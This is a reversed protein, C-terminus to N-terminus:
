FYCVKDKNTFRVHRGYRSTYPIKNAFKTANDSSTAEDRENVTNEHLNDQTLIETVESDTTDFIEADSEEPIQFFIAQPKVRSCRCDDINKSIFPKLRHMSVTDEKGNPLELTFVKETRKAVKFPGTYPAELPKRSRDVRVWVQDCTMLDKPTYFSETSSKHWKPPTFSLDSMHQSLIKVFENPNKSFDVTDVMSTPMLMSSGTVLNFPSQGTTSNPYIRMALLAVPLTEIWDESHCRLINKLTKHQREILGNSQPHYSTTRIRTFGLLKSLETFLQSEFQKGRDTILELPVGWRSVWINLFARAVEEATIGCTPIAEVWRTYRDIFTVIYRYPMNDRHFDRSTELPGVIDMHVTAFRSSPEKLPTWPAKTHRAVKQQQCVTCQRCWQKINSSMRRWYFREAILQTCAKGSAHGLSHFAEFITKRFNEPVVPRPIDMTTECILKVNGLEVLEYNESENTLEKLEKDQEQAAKLAMLDFVDTTISGLIGNRSLYDATLNDNGKLYEITSAHESIFSFQRSQRDSKNDGKKIFAAAIPKHDTFITLQQGDIFPKFFKIADHIALLERDFTSYRLEADKLKRSYYQIVYPEGKVLQHLVAGIARGSADSTITFHESNPDVYFHEVIQKIQQQLKQFSANEEENLDFAEAPKSRKLREYLTFSIDAFKPIFKRYYGILGLYSHLQKTTRPPTMTEIAECKKPLPKIGKTSLEHGLFSIYSKCFVCKDANIKLGNKALITFVENLHSRHEEETKSFILMDDIYTFVFPLPDFLENMFRQFSQAANCLGFPMRLYEFLGIPTTVATKSISEPSMPIQNYGRVLDLKSFITTGHLLSSLSNINKMPYRDKETITNLRRYDGCVRWGDGKPVLHIPSSWSSNSRRVIGLKLLEDFEKKVADLKEGFLPRPKSYVPLGETVIHHQTNHLVPKDATFPSTISPYKSLMQSVYFPRDPTVLMVAFRDHGNLLYDCNTTLKTTNDVLRKNHVDVNINNHYLFDAGIIPVVIEAVVCKWPFRRRLGPFSIEVNSYGHTNISSGNAASLTIKSPILKEAYILPIITSVSGTDIM